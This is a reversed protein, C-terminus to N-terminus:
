FGGARRFRPNIYPTGPPEPTSSGTFADDIVSWSVSAGSTWDAEYTSAGDASLVYALATTTTTTTNSGLTYPSAVSLTSLANGAFSIVLSGAAPAGSFAPGIPSTGLPSNAKTSTVVQVSTFGRFIDVCFCSATNGVYPTANILTASPLDSPTQFVFAQLWRSSANTMQEEAVITFPTNNVSDTIVMGNSAHTGNSQM